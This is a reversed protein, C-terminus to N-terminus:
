QLVEVLLNDTLQFRSCLVRCQTEVENSLQVTCVLDVLFTPLEPVQLKPVFASVLFQTKLLQM